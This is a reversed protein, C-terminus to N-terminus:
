ASSGRAPQQVFETALELARRAGESTAAPRGEERALQHIHRVFAEVWGVFNARRVATDRDEITEAIQELWYESWDAVVLGERHKLLRRGVRQAVPFRAEQDVVRAREARAEAVAREEHERAVEPARREGPGRVQEAKLRRAKQYAGQKSAVCLPGAFEEWSVGAARGDEVARLQGADAQERLYQWLRARLLAAEGVVNVPERPPQRLESAMREAHRLVGFVESVDPFRELQPDGGLRHLERLRDAIGATDVTGLRM